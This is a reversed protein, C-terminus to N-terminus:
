KVEEYRKQEYSKIMSIIEDPTKNLGVDNLAEQYEDEEYEKTGSCGSLMLSGVLIACGILVLKKM